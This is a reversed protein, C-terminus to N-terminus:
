ITEGKHIVMPSSSGGVLVAGPTITADKDIIVNEVRAGKGIVTGQM